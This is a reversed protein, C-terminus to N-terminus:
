MRWAPASNITMRRYRRPLHMAAMVDRALHVVGTLEPEDELYKLWAQGTLTEPLEFDAGGPVEEIGTIRFIEFAGVDFQELPKSIMELDDLLSTRRHGAAVKPLARIPLEEKFFKLVAAARFPECSAVGKLLYEALAARGAIGQLLPAPVQRLVALNNAILVYDIVGLRARENFTLGDQNLAEAITNVTMVKGRCAALVLVLPGLPPLARPALREVILRLEERVAITLDGVDDTWVIAEDEACEWRWVSNPIPTLWEAARLLEQDSIMIGPEDVPGVRPQGAVV